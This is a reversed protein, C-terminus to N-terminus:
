AEKEQSNHARRSFLSASDLSLQAWLHKAQLPSARSVKFVCLGPSSSGKYRVAEGHCQERQVSGTLLKGTCKPVGKLIISAM